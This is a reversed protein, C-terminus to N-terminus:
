VGITRACGRARRDFADRSAFARQSITLTEIGAASARDLGAADPPELHRGRDPGDLGGEAIADILAQLNSGRGSILVGIASASTASGKAM